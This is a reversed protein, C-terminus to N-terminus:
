LKQLKELPPQMIWKGVNKNYDSLAQKEKEVGDSYTKPLSQDKFYQSIDTETITAHGEEARKVLESNPTWGKGKMWKALSLAFAWDHKNVQLKLLINFTTEDPKENTDPRRNFRDWEQTFHWSDIHNALTDLIVHYHRKEPFVGNIMMQKMCEVSAAPNNTLEKLSECWKSPDSGNKQIKTWYYLWPEELQHKLITLINEGNMEKLVADNAVNLRCSGHVGSLNLKKKLLEDDKSDLAKLVNDKLNQRVEVALGKVFETPPTEYVRRETSYSYKPVFKAKNLLKSKKLLNGFKKM